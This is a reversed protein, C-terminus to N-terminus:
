EVAPPQGLALAVAQEVANRAAAEVAANVEPILTAQLARLVAAEIARQVASSLQIVELSGAGAAARLTADCHHAPIAQDSSWSIAAQQYAQVHGQQLQQHQEPPPIGGTANYSCRGGVPLQAGAFLDAPNHSSMHPGLLPAAGLPVEAAWPQLSTGMASSNALHLEAWGELVLGAPSSVM